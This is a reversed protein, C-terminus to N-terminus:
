KVEEIFEELVLINQKLTELVVSVLKNIENVHFNNGELYRLEDFIIGYLVDSM